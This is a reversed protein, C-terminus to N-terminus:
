SPRNPKQPQAQGKTRTCANAAWTMQPSSETAYPTASIAFAKPHEGGQLARFVSSKVLEAVYFVLETVDFERRWNRPKDGFSSKNCSIGLRNADFKDRPCLPEAREPEDLSERIMRRSIAV